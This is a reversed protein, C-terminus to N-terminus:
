KLSDWVIMPSGEKKVLDEIEKWIEKMKAKEEETPERTSLKNPYDIIPLSKLTLDFFSM